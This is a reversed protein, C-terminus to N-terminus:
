VEVSHARLAEAVTKVRGHYKYEGRDFVAANVGIKKLNEAVLEATKRTSETKTIATKTKKRLERDSASVLTIGKVDDIAQISVYKNSRSVTVRPREATGTLKSRVRIKRKQAKSLLHNIKHM